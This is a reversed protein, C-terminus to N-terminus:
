MRRRRFTSSLALMALSSLAIASPEPVAVLDTDARFTLTGTYNASIGPVNTIGFTLNLSGFLDGVPNNNNLGVPASYLANVQFPGDGTLSSVSRGGGSGPTGPNNGFTRDFVTNGALANITLSTLQITSTLTWPNNAFTDGSQTLSWGNGFVGGSAPGTSGWNLTQSGGAFIATVQMGSMLNGNAFSSISVINAPNVNNSSVVLSANASPAVAVFMLALFAAFRITMISVGTSTAFTQFRGNM